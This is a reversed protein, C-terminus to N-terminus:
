YWPAEYIKSAAWGNLYYLANKQAYTIPLSNIVEMVQAKKSGSDTKGDGNADTGKCNKQLRYYEAYASVTMGTDELSLGFNEIPKYYATLAEESMDLDPYQKKFKWYSVKNSAAEESKGGHNVLITKAENETINGDEYEDRCYSAVKSYFSEEAEERTKGGKVEASVMETKVVQMDAQDRNDYAVFYDEIKFMKQASPTASSEDDPKLDNYVSTIAWVVDDFTFKKENIIQYAIRKYESQDGKLRAEAAETIRPDCAKLAKRKAYTADKESDYQSLLRNTMEKNGNVIAEYLKQEKPKEKGTVGEIFAGVADVSNIDDTAFRFANYIERSSRMLNKAPLGFLAAIAGVFDEVKRWDSKNDNFLSDWASKVDQIISMDMREIDWGTFVSIIDKVFPLNNPLFLESSLKGGLQEMYKEWYAEDEDDDRLAYVLSAAAAAAITSIYVSSVTKVAKSKKGGRKAQLIANYLMNISTTPEGMFATAMKMIDGKSRMFGSRSLTSDYVQTYSIVESFREGCKKLFEESNKDLKTKAYTERKVAEWIVIWGIEDAKSAGWMFAEDRYASDTFFGKVKGFGSYEKADLWETVQRGGSADFGGIEKLVAVPAYKKLEDWKKSHSRTDPNGAFYNPDIMSMARIIATPQQIVTSMSASVATKKFNSVMKALPNAVDNTSVGGNLDQIFKKIYENAASGFANKIVTSVSMSSGMNAYAAYNHVKNISDLPLVFAHYMSMKNVHDAWVSDFNSLIIPNSANPITEKTMGSNKLATEQAPTNAEFLFDRSSKLPFYVKEKFLDIGWMARSVENGKEGMVKTLYAQMEDVYARQEETLQGIVKQLVNIDIRYAEESTRVMKLIGKERKFTEKDNFMFGGKQMHPLAQERKSYAYISMMHQLSLPFKRGDPMDIEVTKKMDWKDYGHKARAETLFAKADNVDVAYVDEGRRVEWFLEMMTRSGLREFAYVPKLESWSYNRIAESVKSRDKYGNKDKKALSSIEQMVASAYQQLDETKGQKFIKNETRVTHLVMKYLDYVAELQEMTMNRLATNGVIAKVSDIRARIATAVEKFAEVRPDDSAIIEAYAESLETLRSKIKDGQAQINDIKRSIEQIKEPTKARMLEGKLKEIRQEADVTDMNIAQLASAVAERLGNMVKRDKNSHLLMTNLDSVVRKIKHRMATKDRGEVAKKRSEQYHERMAKERKAVTERYEAIAKNSKQKERKRISEKERKLVNSLPKSAELSLLQKDYTNIRNTIRTAETQLEKIRATDRRGKAFSLEKIEARLESLRAEAQDLLGIKAQYEQIKKREIDNQAASELATSLISRNSTGGDASRDSYLVQGEYLVSEKMSDTIDMSWIETGDPATSMEVTAGWKKGYKRLFKPIEQDYEIRYGKLFGSKGEGEEHTEGDAWREDQTEAITWGISDYGEEAAMRLLRKMVYEHYTDSFPADPANLDSPAAQWKNYLEAYGRAYESIEEVEADSFTVGKRALMEITSDMTDVDTLYNIMMSVGAGEYGVSSVKESIVEAIHSDFLDQQYKKMKRSLDTKTEAGVARYGEKHGENHWDSQIEEVFLMTQGNVDFDQIRAHALVGRTDYGWHGIMAANTYDSDPMRFVIERYNEGGDLSYKKWKPQHKANEEYHENKVGMIKRNLSDAEKAIDRLTDTDEDSILNDMENFANLADCYKNLVAKDSTTMEYHKAFDMRHRHISLLADKWSDFGFDDNNAIVEKLDKKLKELLRGEFSARKYELNVDIIKNTVTSELDAGTNRIPFEDGTIRQWEDALRKAVADRKTTYEDIRKTQDETYPIEKNERTAEEIQLMSGAVFEQLEEKTVSKKGELFAEIGSWKIEENKIGKGKLYPVVGTAGMKQPKIADVVKGMQSYFTPAYSRDSHKVSDSDQSISRIFGFKTEGLPVQIGCAQFWKRTRKKNEDLYLVSTDTILSGVDRRANFTRVKSIDNGARDKSIVIGVMMPSNGVFVDGFVSVTNEESYESIAVPHAIISPIANLLDETLYNGHDAMNRKLKDVDYRLVGTPMGVAHLPHKKGITGVNVYTGHKLDEWKSMQSKFYKDEAFRDNDTYRDSLKFNGEELNDALRELDEDLSKGYEDMFAMQKDITDQFYDANFGGDTVNGAKVQGDAMTPYTNTVAQQPAYEETVCDYVNYDYLLKYYNEHSAFQYFLPLTSNGICWDMFNSATQKPDNTEKLDEYLGYTGHGTQAKKTTVVWGDNKVKDNLENIVAQGNGLRKYAEKITWNVKKGNRDVIEVIKMNNQYPTYDTGLAIHTALKIEAPLSSAHYPIIYRIRNDNLMAFIGLDSYGVGIIGCNASYGESSQLNVADAFGISQLFRKEENPFAQAFMKQTQYDGINYVWRGQADELVVKAYEGKHILMNLKTLGAHAKDVMPDIDFMVSLNVKIGAMGLLKAFSIEKTYAHAPVKRAALDAVMQLYDYINQIQFDSFSQMRVGAITYLYEALSQDGKSAPLLAIESNYPTYSQMLKPTGSGYHGYLVGHFNPLAELKSIGRDTLLDSPRLLHQYAEGSKVIETVAQKNSLSAGPLIENELLFEVDAINLTSVDCTLYKTKLEESITDSKALRDRAAKSFTNLDEGDVKMVKGVVLPQGAREKAKYKELANALRETKTATIYKTAAADIKIAQEVTFSDETFTADGYGFYTANPNVKKVAANWKNCFKTAWELSNYRKSEVFCGLCATEYGSNKLATNIKFINAPTLKVTGSDLSGRKALKDILASMAVRKKCISSLDFNVPYDGNKVMASLVISKISGDPNYNYHLTANKVDQLGIFRYTVGAKEMFESMSDMFKNVEKIQAKTFGSIGMAYARVDRGTFGNTSSSALGQIKTPTLGEISHLITGAGNSLNMVQKPLPEYETRESLLAGDESAIDMMVETAENKTVAGDAVGRISDTSFREQAASFNDAADVAAEAFLEGLRELADVMELVYKGEASDPSFGKYVDKIKALLDKFFKKIRNFLGQDKEKLLAIKEIANTDTFMAELSDAVVEEWAADFSITRGNAKAKAIQKEVLDNVSIGKEGYQEMLFDALIQFKEPSWRRIDHALEHAATYLLLGEGAQGANIDLHVTRTAPDYFGNPAHVVKGEANKYVMRGNVKESAFVRFKVGLAEAISNLAELSVRQRKKLSLKDGDFYVKGYGDDAKVNRKEAAKQDAKVRHKKAIAGLDYATKQQDPSLDKAFAGRSMESMHFGYEGYRYAEKVGEIYSHASVNGNPDFNRVIVNATEADVGMNAVAEYVLAENTSAYSVDKANVTRGNDLRLKMVGDKISAIEKISIETNTPIHFTSGDESAEFEGEVANEKAAPSNDGKSELVTQARNRLLSDVNEGTAAAIRKAIEEDSLQEGTTETPTQAEAEAKARGRAAEMLSSYQTLRQNVTSNQDIIVEKFVESIVENEDLAAIQKKTFAGGNVAKNLWEAITSADAETVGKQVLAAKIESLNQESLEAGVENLLRGIQYAGTNEDVKSAIQYAVTDASFTKGLDALRRTAGDDSIKRGQRTTSVDSAVISGGELMWSSAFGLLASYAVQGWDIDEWTNDAGLAVNEIWPSIFEQLGEEFGEGLGSITFKTAFRAFANDLGNAFKTIAKGTLKGGLKGMGGLLYQMGTEAITTLAAYTHAQDKDYGLNVMEAYSNGYTSAGMLTLGAATGAAPNIAGVVASTLVTPLMNATTTVADYSFQAFGGWASEGLDERIMGSLIQTRNAPIYDEDGKSLNSIGTTFQDLGAEFGFCLELFWNDDFHEFDAEAKRSALTEALTGLYENAKEAGQTAYYYNYVAVENAEIYDYGAEEEAMEGDSWPNDRNRTIYDSKAKSRYDQTIPNILGSTIPQNNIYEYTHDRGWDTHTSVYGSKEDFDEANTAEDALKIGHQIYEAKKKKQKLESIKDSMEKYQPQLTNYLEMKEDYTMGAFEDVYESGVPSVGGYPVGFENQAAQDAYYGSQIQQELIPVKRYVDTSMLAEIEAQTAVTDLTVLEEYAKQAEVAKNYDEESDYKSAVVSRRRFEDSISRQGNIVNDVAEVMKQYDEESYASKNAYLSRKIANGRDRLESGSKFYSSSLSSANSYGINAYDKQANEAYKTADSFFSDIYSQDIAVTINAAMAQKHKNGIAKFGSVADNEEGSDVKTGIAKKHKKSIEDFTM